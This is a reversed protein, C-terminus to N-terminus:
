KGAKITKKKAKEKPVDKTISENFAEIVDTLQKSALGVDDIWDWVDDEDFYPEQKKKKCFNIASYYIVAHYFELVNKQVSESDGLVDIGRETKMDRITRVSMRLGISKESTKLYIEM